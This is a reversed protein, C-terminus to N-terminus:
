AGFAQGREDACRSLFERWHQDGCTECYVKADAIRPAPWYLARVGKALYSQCGAACYAGFRLKTWRPDMNRPYNRYRRM